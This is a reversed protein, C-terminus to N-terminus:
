FAVRWRICDRSSLWFKRGHVTHARSVKRFPQVFCRNLRTLIQPILSSTYAFLYDGNHKFVRIAAGSLRAGFVLSSHNLEDSIILCGKEVLAPLTTSNTAFGMSVVMADEKGVFRAVLKELQVHIDMTGGEFRSSCVGIHSKAVTKEVNDACLGESQAFGLYNYSSFNVVTRTTGLL